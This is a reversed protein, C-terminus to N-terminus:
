PAGAVCARVEAILVEAPKLAGVRYTPVGAAAATAKLSDMLDEGLADCLLLLAYQKQCLRGSVEEASWVTDVPFGALRLVDARTEQLTAYPGCILLAPEAQEHRVNKLPQARKASFNKYHLEPAAHGDSAYATFFLLAARM